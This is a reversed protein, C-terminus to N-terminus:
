CFVSSCNYCNFNIQGTAFFYPFPRVTKPTFFLQNRDYDERGRCKKTHELYVRITRVVCLLPVNDFVQFDVSIPPQGTRRSKILKELKFSDKKTDLCCLESSRGASSLALLTALKLTLLKDSLCRGILVM